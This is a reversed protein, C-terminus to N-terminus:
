RGLLLEVRVQGPEVRQTITSEIVRVGSKRALTAILPVVADFRASALTVRLRGEKEDLAGADPQLGHEAMAHEVAPRLPGRPPLPTKALTVLEAAQAQAAVLLARERPLDRALRTSDAVMPQWLWAYGAGGLVVLAALAFLRRERTSARAWADEAARLM